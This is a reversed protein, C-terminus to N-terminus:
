AVKREEKNVKKPPKPVEIKNVDCHYKVRYLDAKGTCNNIIDCPKEDIRYNGAYLDNIAMVSQRYVFRILDPHMLWRCSLTRYEMGYPKPRFAGARGYLKRRQVAEPTHDWYLSPIGLWYDLSVALMRCAMFHTTEFPDHNRTWGIHVHGSTTRFKVEGDPTPNVNGTYANYDPDCGLRKSDESASDFVDKAFTVCPNTPDVTVGEPLMGQIRRFVNGIRRVFGDETKVPDIGFELAMGDVQVMGNIIKQPEKKTGYVMGEACLYKNQNRVFVEPDCGFKFETNNIKVM